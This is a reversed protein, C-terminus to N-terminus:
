SISRGEADEIQALVVALADKAKLFREPLRFPEEGTAHAYMGAFDTAYPIKGYGKVPGYSLRLTFTADPYETAGYIAFRALAIKTANAEEVADLEDEGRKRILRAEEDLARALRIMGDESNKAAEVSSALRKLLIDKVERAM